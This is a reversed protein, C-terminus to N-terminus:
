PLIWQRFNRVSRRRERQFVPADKFAAGGASDRAAAAFDNEIGAEGTVLLNEGVWAVGPLNDAEGVRVNAVDARIKFIFLGRARVNFRQDDAFERL